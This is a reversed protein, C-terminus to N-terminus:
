RTVLEHRLRELRGRVSADVRLSGAQLIMGGILEPEVKRTAEVTRGSAQEIQKLISAAEEDSLEYATTVEVAIRGQARDVLAEFERRIEPLQASRGKDALVRLFNRVLDDAGESIEGLVGSKAAPDVQPNALFAALEPSAEVADAFEGLDHQVQEVRGGELAAEYLARAYMREAVAM